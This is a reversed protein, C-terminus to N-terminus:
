KLALVTLLGVQAISLLTLIALLFFVAHDTVHLRNGSVEVTDKEFTGEVLKM